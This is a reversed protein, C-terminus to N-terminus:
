QAEAGSEFVVKGNFVTLLVQTESIRGAEDNEALAVINQDLVVLDAIKGVEISGLRDQHKFLRAGNITLAAIAQHVDIAEKPNLAVESGRTVAMQLNVLPIPKRTGVPADSGHVLTGGYELISNSPYVNQMYYHEPNYLDAVGQVEDIFPAVTMEYEIGSDSWVQTMVMYVGLEGIRKQDDPHVLQAHAISQTLGQSDALEKVQAFEDVVIRVAKDALAHVHVHFGAETAKRIYSRIFEEPHELIGAYPICQPPFFGNEDAFAAIVDNTAYAEPNHQV